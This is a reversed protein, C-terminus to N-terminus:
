WSGPPGEEPVVGQTLMELSAPSLSAPFGRSLWDLDPVEGSEQVEVGSPVLNGFSVQDPAPGGERVGFRAAEEALELRELDEISDLGRQFMEQGRRELLKRQKRLRRRKARLLQWKELMVEEEDDLSELQAAVKKQESLAKDVEAIFDEPECRLGKEVCRGCKSSASSLVCEKSSKRCNKCSVM